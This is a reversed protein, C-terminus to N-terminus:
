VSSITRIGGPRKLSSSIPSRPSPQIAEEVYLYISHHFSLHISLHTHITSSCIHMHYDSIPPHICTNVSSYRTLVIKHTWALQAELSSNMLVLDTSSFLFLSDQTDPFTSSGVYQLLKRTQRCTGLQDLSSSVQGM